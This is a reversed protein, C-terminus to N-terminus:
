PRRLNARNLYALAAIALSPLIFLSLVVRLGAQDGIFGV